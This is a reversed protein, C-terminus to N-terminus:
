LTKLDFQSASVPFRKCACRRLQFEFEVPHAWRARQSQGAIGLALDIKSIECSHFTKPDTSRFKRFALIRDMAMFEIPWLRDVSRDAFRDTEYTRDHGFLLRALPHTDLREPTLYPTKRKEFLSRANHDAIPGLFDFEERTGHFNGSEVWSAIAQHIVLSSRLAFNLDGSALSAISPDDALM